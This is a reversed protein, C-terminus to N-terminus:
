TNQVILSLSVYDEIHLPRNNQDTFWVEIYDFVSDTSKSQKLLKPEIFLLKGFDDSSVFTYLLKSNQLHDNRVVNCRLLVFRVQELRPVNEGNKDKDIVPADGLLRMTENTLLELKYGTKIKFVIRNEIRNPYILIPSEESSEADTEHKKIVWLFYYQIDKITYSGDPLYFTEDWTPGSLKFKNNKYDEKINKWSYYISLNSLSVTKNGRLDLNNTFDLRFRNFDTTKSNETDLFLIEM